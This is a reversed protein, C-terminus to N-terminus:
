EMPVEIVLIKSQVVSSFRLGDLQTIEASDGEKLKEKGLTIEGKVVFVFVGHSPNELSYLIKQGSDFTGFSLFADQHLFVIDKIKKGSAIRHLINKSSSIKKQEYSPKIDLVNPEIWLQLIRSDGQSSSFESHLVGTGASMRQIEGESIIGTNGMSDTHELSGDIVLTIIEMNDHGHKGFGKGAKIIDDNVVLLKGFSLREPDYYDGFSFSHKSNLWDLKTSGREKSRQILMMFFCVRM